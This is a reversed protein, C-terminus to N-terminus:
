GQVGHSTTDLLCNVYEAQSWVLPSVSMKEATSTVQEALMGTSSMQATVWEIIEMGAEMDDIEFCYQALWLSTVFWANPQTSDAQQYGDREFRALGPNDVNQLASKISKVSEAVEPSKISYLGFMYAGYVSSVDITEDVDNPNNARFGKNFCSSSPSYLSASHRKITEATTKWHVANSADNMIEALYAAEALAGYVVGTTYTSTLYSHEWIDYSPNPLSTANDIYSALFKTMPVILSHYYTDLLARNKQVEYFRAFLFVIIATEDEQIPAETVSDHYWGNWNPGVSGDPFYKHMLYGEPQITRQCYDFFNTIESVYGLRVLPWLAYATDRPWVYGYADNAPGSSSTDTSAIVGGDNDIHSKIIMISQTFPKQYHKPLRVSARETRLLWQSWWQDTKLLRALVGETQIKKHLKQVESFSGGWAMWYEVRSSDHGAVEIKFGFVSDVEGYEVANGSLHGDEADRFTGDFGTNCRGVAFQDYFRGDITRGGAMVYQDAKYHLIAGSEPLAQATEPLLSAGITLHQQFFLKIERNNARTNIINLSRMFVNLRADVADYLELSIGCEANHASTVGILASDIYKFKFTWAGNDLWHMADDVYVGIRQYQSSAPSQNYQGVHPYYIDAVLGFQNLGVHLKGNGFVIPRGM